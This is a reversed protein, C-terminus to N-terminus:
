LSIYGGEMIPMSLAKAFNTPKYEDMGTETVYGMSGLHRM